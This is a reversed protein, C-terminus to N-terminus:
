QAGEDTCQNADNHIAQLDVNLTYLQDSERFMGDDEGKDAEQEASGAEVDDGLDRLMHLRASEGYKGIHTRM